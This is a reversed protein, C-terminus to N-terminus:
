LRCPRGYSRYDRGMVVCAFSITETTVPVEISLKKATDELPVLGYPIDEEIFRNHISAPAEMGRYCINTQIHEYLGEGTTGYNRKMWDTISELEYGLKYAVKLREGDLKEILGAIAPTIGDKYYRFKRGNDVSGFNLLLPLPHLVMGINGFSTEIFSDAKRYCKRICEPLHNMVKEINGAAIPIDKKMGYVKIRDEGEKRSACVTTQCEAVLPLEKCGAEKLSEVFDIIGFVKGPSLIVTYSADIYSALLAAIEKHAYAPVTVLIIKQLVDEIQSSANCVGIRGNWIGECIIERTKIIKSIHTETRNYLYSEVGNIGLYAAMALGQNGAGIITVKSREM